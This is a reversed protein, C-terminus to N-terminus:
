RESDNDGEGGVLIESDRNLNKNEKGKESQFVIGM